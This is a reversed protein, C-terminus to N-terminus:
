EGRLFGASKNVLYLRSQALKKRVADNGPDSEFM